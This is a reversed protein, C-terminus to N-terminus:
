LLIAFTPLASSPVVIICDPSTLAACSAGRYLPLPGMMAGIIVWAPGTACSVVVATPEASALLGAADVYRGDCSFLAIRGSVAIRSSSCTQRSLEIQWAELRLARVCRASSRRAPQEAQQSGHQQWDRRAAALAAIKASALRGVAAHRQSHSAAAAREAWGDSSETMIMMVMQGDRATAATSV